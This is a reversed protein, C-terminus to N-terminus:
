MYKSITKRIQTIYRNGVTEQNTYYNIKRVTDSVLDRYIKETSQQYVQRAESIKRFFSNKDVFAWKQPNHFIDKQLPPLSGYFEPTGIPNVETEIYYPYDEGLYDVYGGFQPVVVVSGHLCADVVNMGVGEGHSLSVYIHSREHLNIIEPETYIEDIIIINVKGLVVEYEKLKVLRKIEEITQGKFGKIILKYCEKKSMEDSNVKQYIWEITWICTQLFNKRCDNSNNLILIVMEHRAVLYKQSLLYNSDLSKSFIHPVIKCQINLSREFVLKNFESPVIIDDFLRYTDTYLQPLVTTEWTLYGAKRVHVIRLYDLISYLNCNWTGHYIFFLNDPNDVKEIILKLREINFLSNVSYEFDCVTVGKKRLLTIFRKAILSLGDANIRHNAYIIVPTSEESRLDQKKWVSCFLSLDVLYKYYEIQTKSNERLINQFTAISHDDSLCFVERLIDGKKNEM